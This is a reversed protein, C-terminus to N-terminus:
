RKATRASSFEVRAGVGHASCRLPHEPLVDDGYSRCSVPLGFAPDRGQEDRLDIRTGTNYAVRSRPSASSPTRSRFGEVDPATRLYRAIRRTLRKAVDIPRVMSGHGSQIIARRFLGRALPSAVLCAISMAGASEGFVTVNAPDGGFARSTIASGPSRRSSTACGWIPRRATSRCSAKSGSGIITALACSATRAFRRVTTSRCTRAASYSRGATSSCWSRYAPRRRAPAWVNLTLFDDGRAVRPRHAAAVDLNPFPRTFQPATAGAVTADRVGSWSEPPEPARFRRAGVPSAAYPVGLFVDVGGKRVGRVSGSTTRAIPATADTASAIM